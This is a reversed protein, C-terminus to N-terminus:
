AKTNSVARMRHVRRSRPTISKAAPFGIKNKNHCGNSLGNRQNAQICEGRANAGHHSTDARIVLLRLAELCQTDAETAPQLDDAAAIRQNQLDEAGAEPKGGLEGLADLDFDALGAM